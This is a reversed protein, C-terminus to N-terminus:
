RLAGTFAPPGVVATSSGRRSQISLGAVAGSLIWLTWWVGPVLKFGQDIQGYLLPASYGVLMAAVMAGDRAPLLRYLRIGRAYTLWVFAVILAVGPLGVEGAFFLLVNHVAWPNSGDIDKPDYRVKADAYNNLGVGLLPNARVVRLAVRYMDFRGTVSSATEDFRRLLLRSTAVFVGGLLVVTLGVAFVSRRPNVRRTVVFVVALLCAPMIVLVGRTFTLVLAASCLLAVSATVIRELANRATLSFGVAIPIVIGLYQAFSTAYGVLGGVRAANGTLREELSVAEGIGHVQLFGPTGFRYQYFAILAQLTAGVLLWRLVLRFDDFSDVLKSVIFYGLCIGSVRLLENFGLVYNENAVISLAAWALFAFLMGLGGDNVRLRRRGGFTELVLVVLLPLLLLDMVGIEIVGQAGGYHFVAPPSGLFFAMAALPTSFGVARLMLRRRDRVALFVALAIGLMAMVVLPKSPFPTSSALAGAALAGMLALGSFAYRLPM